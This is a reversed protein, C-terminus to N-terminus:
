ASARSCRRTSASRPSRCAGSTQQRSPATPRAAAAVPSPLPVAAHHTTTTATPPRHHRHADPTTTTTPEAPLTGATTATTCRHRRGRSAPPSSPPASASPSRRRPRRHRRRVNRRGPRAGCGRTEPRDADRRLTDRRLDVHPSPGLPDRGARSTPSCPTPPASPRRRICAPIGIGRYSAGALFLGPPLPPTSRPSGASTTRATSRSRVAALPHRAGRDAAPRRGLHRGVEDLVAASSRRRRRPRRAPAGDRGLSVRLVEGEGAAALPGVEALRVLGRHGLAPGAQARPLRQPRAAARAVRRGVALTVMVVDAHDMAGLRAALDPPPRASSRLPRARGPHRAGRRRVPEDDVRWRPATPPSSRAGHARQRVTSAPPRPRARRRGDVLQQWARRAARRLGPGTAAGGRRDPPAPASCCAARRAPSTPSSPCWRWASATPTPPTSAASSRTSSASTSRTASAPASSRARDLRRRDVHAAAATRARRAAKGRWALLRTRPSRRARRGPVGSCCATPSRTCGTTGSPPPRRDGAVVLEDGLGVARPSRRHRAPCAALFADAGEDVAPRGAFPTRARDQRRAADGADLVTVDVGDALQGLAASLRPSGPSAAASVVVRRAAHEDARRDVRRGARAMVAPDDNVCPPAPSRWGPRRPASARGRHRPRLAGRPPRRRVRVACVLVGDAHEAPPRPRRHGALIDPGLWPEATRGASQWGISWGSWRGLGLRTPSPRRRHRAARRPVPRRRRPDAAPALPRHVAGQHGGADDGPTARVDAALFDVFAPELAWSSSAPSRCAARRPRAAAGARPVRRGLRRTTRPSCWASSGTSAARPSRTSRRGRDVARRAEARARRRVARARARRARGAARRAAGRHARGAALRRRDRRLPATLDALQEPTPPRGRRIDTYYPEIEDPHRPTGYAMLSWASRDDTM